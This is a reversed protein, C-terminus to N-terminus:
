VKRCDGGQEREVGGARVLVVIQSGRIHSGLLQHFSDREGDCMVALVGVDNVELAEQGGGILHSPLSGLATRYPRLTREPDGEVAAILDTHTHVGAASIYPALRGVEGDIVEACRKDVVEEPCTDGATDTLGLCPLEVEGHELVSRVLGGEPLTGVPEEVGVIGPIM